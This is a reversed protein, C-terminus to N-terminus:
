LQQFGVHTDFVLRLLFCLREVKWLSNESNALKKIICSDCAESTLDLKRVVTSCSYKRDHVLTLNQTLTSCYTHCLRM